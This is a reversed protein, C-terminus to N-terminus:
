PRENMWGEFTSAIYAVVADVDESDSPIKSQRQSGEDVPYGDFDQVDFGWVDNATGFNLLCPGDSEPISLYGPYEHFADLGRERLKNCVEQMMGAKM